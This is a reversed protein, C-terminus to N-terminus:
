KKRGHCRMQRNSWIAMPALVTVLKYATSGRFVQGGAALIASALPSDFGCFIDTFIRGKANSATPIDSNHYRQIAKPRPQLLGIMDSRLVTVEHLSDNLNWGKDTTLDAIIGWLMRDAAQAELVNVHCLGLDADLRTSILGLFKLNYAKVRGLHCGQVLAYATAVLELMTRIGNFGMNANSVDISPPDDWLLQHLSTPETKAVKSPRAMQIEELRQQSLRYKWPIWAIDKKQVQSHAMAILRRSGYSSSRKGEPSRPFFFFKWNFDTADKRYRELRIAPEIAPTQGGRHVPTKPRFDTVISDILTQQLQLQPYVDDRSYLRVSQNISRHHGQQRRQEEFIAPIQASWSLFTAKLGHITYNSPNFPSSGAARWPIHIFTRLYYLADTYRMPELPLVLELSGKMTIRPIIFDLQSNGHTAFVDDLARFFILMWTHSSLSMFGSALCGFAQGKTTTKTRWAIGRIDKYDFVLQSPTIRQM